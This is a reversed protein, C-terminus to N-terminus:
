KVPEVEEVTFDRCYFHIADDESDYVEYKFVEWQRDSIDKIAFGMIQFPDKCQYDQIYEFVFRYAINKEWSETQIIVEVYYMSEKLYFSLMNVLTLDSYRVGRKELIDM